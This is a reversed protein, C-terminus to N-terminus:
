EKRAALTNIKEELMKFLRENELRLRETEKELYAIYRAEIKIEDVKEQAKEVEDGFYQPFGKILERALEKRRGENTSRRWSLFGGREVGVKKMMENLTIGKESKLFYIVKEVDLQSTM